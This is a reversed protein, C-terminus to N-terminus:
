KCRNMAAPVACPPATQEASFRKVLEFFKYDPDTVNKLKLLLMEQLLVHDSARITYFGKPGDLKMGEWAAILGGAGDAGANGGTAELARVIMQAALFGEGTFLDPPSKYAARHKEVLWNNVPNDYMTYHYIGLGISGVAEAYGKALTQNDGFGTAVTMQDFVGLQTMQQFLPTFGAGAWTVIVVDAGSDLIQNIYSTFNTTELPAFVTGLGEPTDNVTFQGGGAKIISYFAAASGRGFAYDPALQVFKKGMGLVATGMTLADQVSTRGARFAYPNFNAGTLDPTGAAVAIFPVKNQAAVGSVALAVGSSPAGVLIKAGDKEILERAVTVGKNVDSATDKTVVKIDHGMVKNTGDTAYELGLAFGREIMPGYVALSGSVDTMMGVTIPAGAASHKRNHEFRGLLSLLVESPKGANEPHLEFVAREFYQVTYTKGDTLNREQFEDTIPYGQQPLGGNKDWYARFKGGITKGTQTFKFPNDTSAKQDAVGNPHYRKFSFVGLLSLLVDFPQKNDPHLEFVAREFYQTTYTKGDTDSKEQMEASIPYGQQPLGGNQDWYQLFRGKVTQGTEPFTRSGGQAYSQGAGLMPLMGLMLTLAVFTSLWKTTSRTM